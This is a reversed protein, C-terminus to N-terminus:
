YMNKRSYAKSVHTFYGLILVKGVFFRFSLIIKWSMQWGFFSISFQKQSFIQNLM